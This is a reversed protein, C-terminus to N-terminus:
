FCRPCWGLKQSEMGNGRDAISSLSVANWLWFSSPTRKVVSLWRKPKGLTIKPLDKKLVQEFIGLFRVATKCMKLPKYHIFGKNSKPADFLLFPM